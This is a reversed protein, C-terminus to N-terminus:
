RAVHLRGCVFVVHANIRQPGAAPGPVVRGVQRVNQTSVFASHLVLVDHTLHDVQAVFVRPQQLGVLGQASLDVLLLLLPGGDVADLLMVLLDQVGDARLLLGQSHLPFGYALKLLVVGTQARVIFEVRAGGSEFLGVSFALTRAAAVHSFLALVVSEHGVPGAGIGAV